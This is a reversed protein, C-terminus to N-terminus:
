SSLDPASSAFWINVLPSLDSQDNLWAEWANMRELYIRLKWLDPDKGAASALAQQNSIETALLAAIQDRIIEFTDQRDILALTM